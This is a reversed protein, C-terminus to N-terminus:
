DVLIVNYNKLFYEPEYSYISGDRFMCWINYNFSYNDLEEDFDEEEPDGITIRLYEDYVNYDYVNNFKKFWEIFEEINYKSLYCCDYEIKSTCKM